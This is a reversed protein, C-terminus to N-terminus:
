SSACDTAGGADTTADTVAAETVSDAAPRARASDKADAAVDTTTAESADETGRVPSREKDRALGASARAVKEARPTAPSSLVDAAGSLAITATRAAVAVGANPEARAKGVSCV